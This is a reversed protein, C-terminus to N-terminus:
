TESPSSAPEAAARSSGSARASTSATSRTSRWASSTRRSCTRALASVPSSAARARSGPGLADAQAAGLVLEEALPPHVDLAEDEDSVSSSRSRREVRQQRQLALVEGPQQLRHVPQRRRDPEDVRRQVLEQGVEGVERDLHRDRLLAALGVRVVDLQEGGYAPHM